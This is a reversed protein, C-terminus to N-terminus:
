HDSVVYDGDVSKKNNHKYKAFMTSSLESNRTPNINKRLSLSNSRVVRHVKRLFDDYIHNRELPVFITHLM